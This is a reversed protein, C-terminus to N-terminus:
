EKSHAAIVHKRLSSPDVGRYGCVHCVHLRAGSHMRVHRMLASNQTFGKGCESCVYPREGSHVRRHTALHGQQTFAKGCTPCVFPTEGTHTREHAVMSHKRNSSYPCHRCQHRGEAKRHATKRHRDLHDRSSFLSDCEGCGFPGAVEARPTERRDAHRLSFPSPPM